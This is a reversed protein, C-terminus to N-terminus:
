PKEKMLGPSPFHCFYRDNTNDQTNEDGGRYQHQAHTRQPLM